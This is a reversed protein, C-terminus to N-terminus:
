PSEWATAQAFNAGHAYELLRKTPKIKRTRRSAPLYAHLPVRRASTEPHPLGVDDDDPSSDPAAREPRREGPGAQADLDELTEGLELVPDAALPHSGPADGLQLAQVEVVEEDLVASVVRRAVDAVVLQSRRALGLERGKGEGVQMGVHRPGQAQLVDGHLVGQQVVGPVAPGHHAPANGAHAGFAPRGGPDREPVLPLLVLHATPEHHACVTTGGAHPAREPHRQVLIGDVVQDRTQEDLAGMLPGFVDLGCALSAVDVEQHKRLPAPLQAEVGVVVGGLAAAERTGVAGLLQELGEVHIAHRM